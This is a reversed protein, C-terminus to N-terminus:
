YPFLRRHSKEDEVSIAKTPCTKAADLIKEVDAGKENIVESKPNFRTTKNIQFVEPAITECSCCAICLSPDVEVSVDNEVNITQNVNFKETHRNPREYKEWFEKEYQRWFNQYASEAKAYRDWHESEGTTKRPRWSSPKRFKSSQRKQESKLYHYAETAQKFKEGDKDSSSKDPHLKLALKRYAYKVDSFSSEDTVGLIQCSQYRNV